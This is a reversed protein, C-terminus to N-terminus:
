GEILFSQVLSTGGALLIADLKQASMLERARAIRDRREPTTIPRAQGRMSKLAAISAPLRAARAPARFVAAGAIASGLTLFRRRSLM